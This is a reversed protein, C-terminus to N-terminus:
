KTKNKEDLCRKIYDIAEIYGLFGKGKIQKHTGNSTISIQRYVERKEIDSIHVEVKICKLLLLADLISVSYHTYGAPNIIVGDVKNYINQIYDIIEGEHNSQFIECQINEKECHKNILNKLDEYTEVGYQEEERKGLMNLNAGNIISIKM